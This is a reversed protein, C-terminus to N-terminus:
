KVLTYNERVTGLTEDNAFMRIKEKDQEKNNKEM